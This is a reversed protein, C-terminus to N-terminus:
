PSPSRVVTPRNEDSSCFCVRVGAVFTPTFPAVSAPLWITHSIMGDIVAVTTGVAWTASFVLIMSTRGGYVDYLAVHVAANFLLGAVAVM